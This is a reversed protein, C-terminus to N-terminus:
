LGPLNEKMNSTASAFSALTTHFIFTNSIYIGSTATGQSSHPPFVAVSFM